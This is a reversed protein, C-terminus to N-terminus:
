NYVRKFGVETMYFTQGKRILLGDSILLRTAEEIRYIKAGEYKPLDAILYRMSIGEEMKFKHAKIIGLMANVTADLQEDIPEDPM